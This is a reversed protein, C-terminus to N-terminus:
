SAIQATLKVPNSYAYFGTFVGLIHGLLWQTLTYDGMGRSLINKCLVQIHYNLFQMNRVALEPPAFRRELSRLPRPACGWRPGPAADRALPSPPRLGWIKKRFYCQFPPLFLFRLLASHVSAFSFFFSYSSCKTM